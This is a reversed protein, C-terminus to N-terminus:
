SAAQPKTRPHREPSSDVDWASKDAFSGNGKKPMWAELNTSAARKKRGEDPPPNDEEEEEDDDDEAASSRTEDESTADSACKRRPGSRVGKAKKEPAKYPAPVLMKAAGPQSSTAGEEGVTTAPTSGSAGLNMEEEMPTSEPTSARAPSAGRSPTTSPAAHQPLGKVAGGAATRREFYGGSAQREDLGQSEEDGEAGADGHGEGASEAWQALEKDEATAGDEDEIASASGAEMALTAEAAKAAIYDLEEKTTDQILLPEDHVYRESLSDFFEQVREVEPEVWNPDRGHANFNPM